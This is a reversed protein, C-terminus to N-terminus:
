LVVRGGEVQKIGEQNKGEQFLQSREMKCFEKILWLTMYELNEQNEVVQFDEWLGIAL